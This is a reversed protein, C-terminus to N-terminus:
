VPKLKSRVMEKTCIRDCYKKFLDVFELFTNPTLMKLGKSGYLKETMSRASLHIHSMISCITAKQTERDSKKWAVRDFVKDETDLIKDAICVLAEHPWSRYVDVCCSRTVLAPFKFFLNEVPSTDTSLSSYNLCVVLHLNSRVRRFFREQAIDQNETRKAGRQGGPLLQSSIMSLENSTYLGPCTGLSVFTCIDLM